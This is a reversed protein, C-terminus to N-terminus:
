RNQIGTIAHESVERSDSGTILLQFSALQISVVVAGFPISNSNTYSLVYFFISCTLKRSALNAAVVGDVPLISLLRQFRFDNKRYRIKYYNNVLFFYVFCFEM